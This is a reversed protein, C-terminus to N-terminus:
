NGAQPVTQERGTAADFVRRAGAQEIWVTTSAGAGEVGAAGIPAKGLEAKWAGEGSELDIAILMGGGAAAVIEFSHRHDTLTIPGSPHIRLPERDQALRLAGIKAANARSFAFVEARGSGRDVRVTVARDSWAIAPRGPAGAYPPIMAQWKMAGKEHLELFSRDGGDERRIVVKADGDLAVTDIVEGAKPKAATMYWVAVGAIAAGVLVIIPGLLGLVKKAM